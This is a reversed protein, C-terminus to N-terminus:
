FVPNEDDKLKEDQDTWWKEKFDRDISKQYDAPLTQLEHEDKELRGPDTLTEQIKIIYDGIKSM